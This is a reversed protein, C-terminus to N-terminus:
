IIYKYLLITYYIIGGSMSDIVVRFHNSRDSLFKKLMPFDFIEKMLEVYDQVSDVVCVEVEWNEVQFLFMSPIVFNNQRGLILRIKKFFERGDISKFM